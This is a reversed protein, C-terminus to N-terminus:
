FNITFNGLFDSLPGLVAQLISNIFTLLAGLFDNLAAEFAATDMTKEKIPSHAVWVLM